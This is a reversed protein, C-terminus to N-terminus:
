LNLITYKKWKETKFSYVNNGKEQVPVQRVGNFIAFPKNMRLCCVNGSKSYISAKDLSYNKWTIDVVFGGRACIGKLIGAPFVKPLAPLFDIAGTHSQLLMETLVATACGNGNLIVAQLGESNFLNPFLGYLNGGPKTVVPDFYQLQYKWTNWASDGEGLRAWCAAKLAFGWTGNTKERFSLAIKAADSLQPTTFPSIEGGPFVPYLHTLHRHGPDLAKWEGAPWELLQGKTGISYPMLRALAKNLQLSFTDEIKLIEAARICNNFLEKILAIDGTTNVSIQATDGKGSIFTNEPSVSPVSVLKGDKNEVLWDLCFEAAGKMVPWAKEKLFKKDGTFLYHEYFHASLWPGSMNWTAWHPNGEGWNGGAGTSRWIDTNHHACWGNMGYNIRATKKGNEALGEIFDLFPEHMESLNNTEVAYYFMQADHDICYNSSYEPRLKDNWIGKLNLPQGGPRSGSILLYRGYQAVTAVLEADAYTSMQRLREDTPLKRNKSEGLYFYVRQYISKYDRTHRQLLVEFTKEAATNLRKAAEVGPDKGELGPSKLYGNYSTAASIIFSAADANEVIINKNEIRIKGEENKVLLHVEFTMGEGKEEEAYQVARDGKLRWLYQPEVHKPCKGRLVIHNDSISYVSYHLKSTLGAKFSISGKRNSIHRMVIVQDSFSSFATRTYTINRSVFSVTSVASDLKLTRSYSSSDGLGSYSILLDAMPMYSETYPGQMFKSLSDATKYNGELAARRVLPLYKKGEPNNWNRPGGSWLTQENLPIYDTAVGGYVMGGLRGNGIPLAENWNVSPKNYWIKSAYTLGPSTIKQALGNSLFLIGSLALFSLKVNKSKPSLPWLVTLM